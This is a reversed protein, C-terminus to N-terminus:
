GKKVIRAILVDKDVRIMSIDAYPKYIQVFLPFTNFRLRIYIVDADSNNLYNIFYEARDTLPTFPYMIYEEDGKLYKKYFLAYKKTDHLAIGIKKGKERFQPSDYYAYQFIDGFRILMLGNKEFFNGGTFYTVLFFIVFLIRLIAYKFPLFLIISILIVAYPLVNIFYFSKIIPRLQSILFSSIFVFSTIYLSYFYFNLTKKDIENFLLNKIKPILILVTVVFIIIPTISNTFLKSIVDFLGTLNIKGITGNFTEDLLARNLSTTLFYPLFLIAGSLNAFFFKIIQEKKMKFCAFIFNGMLVLIQFYHCNAMLIALIGYLVIDKNKNEEIIKFLLIGSVVSFLAALSYTRFEQASQISYFSITFLFSALLASNKSVYKKVFFYIAGITLVSFICPLLRLLAENQGFIMQWYRALIFFLPPNGPDTLVSSFPLAPNGAVTATYLEDSWFAFDNDALRLFIGLLIIWWIAYNKFINFGLNIKDKNNIYILIAAFFCILPFVFYKMNYFIALFAVSIQKIFGKDTIYKGNKYYKVNKPFLFEGKKNREFKLIDDSKFYYFSKGLSITINNIQKIIKEPNNDDIKLSLKYIPIKNTEYTIYSNETKMIYPDLEIKGTMLHVKNILKEDMEFNLRADAFKRGVLPIDLDNQYVFGNWAFSVFSLFAFIAFLLNAFWKSKYFIVKEKEM